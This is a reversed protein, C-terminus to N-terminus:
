SVKDKALSSSARPTTCTRRELRQRSIKLARERVPFALIQQASPEIGLAVVTVLALAWGLRSQLPLKWMLAASGWPGRSADDFVQLHSLPRPQTSMHRWKLQSLCSTIPVLMAVKSLTTLIAIISNPQISAPWDELPTDHASVLVAAVMSMCVISFMAAAIDEWWWCHTAKIEQAQANHETDYDPAKASSVERSEQVSNRPTTGDSLPSGPPSSCPTPTPTEDAEALARLTLSYNPVVSPRSTLRRSCDGPYANETDSSGHDAPPDTSAM